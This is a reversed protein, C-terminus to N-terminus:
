ATAELVHRLLLACGAEASALREAELRMRVPMPEGMKGIWTAGTELREALFTLDTRCAELTGSFRAQDVPTVSRAEPHEPTSRAANIPVGGYFDLVRRM